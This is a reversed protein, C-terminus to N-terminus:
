STAGADTITLAKLPHAAPRSLTKEGVTLHLVSQAILPLLLIFASAVPFVM